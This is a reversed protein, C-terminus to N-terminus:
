LVQTPLSESSRRVLIWGGVRAVLPQEKDVADVLGSGAAM